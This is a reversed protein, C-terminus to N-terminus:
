ASRPYTREQRVRTVHTLPAGKVPAAHLQPGKIAPKALVRKVRGCDACQLALFGEEDRMRLMDGHGLVCPSLLHSVKTAVGKLDLFSISSSPKLVIWFQLSLFTRLM